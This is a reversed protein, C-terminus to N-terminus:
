FWQVVRSWLSPSNSPLITPHQSSTIATSATNVTPSPSIQEGIVVLRHISTGPPDCTILTATAPKDTPNLVSVDTPDVIEKKYVQYVYEKGNRTLYFLDGNDLHSLLVFAFKYKGPNFINNSSHGFIVTNGMEGPYPTTAYHVVGQELSTEMAAEDISTQNYIVPIEVNIKPIIVEPNPGVAASNPDIIIPTASVHKSPTVFPAIFRENFFGFLLFLVVLAGMGLGFMLSQLHQRAKLKRRPKVNGLLQQKLEAVTRPQNSHRPPRRTKSKLHEAAHSLRSEAIYPEVLPKAAKAPEPVPEPLSVVTVPGTVAQPTPQQAQAFHSSQNNSAYFEQWVEHKQEDPLSAYYNHWATQIDAMSKGSNSLQYIFQQHKSRGHNIEAAERAETKADPEDAYLSTLKNRILNAAQHAENQESEGYRGAATHHAPHIHRPHQPPTGDTDM